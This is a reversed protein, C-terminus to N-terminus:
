NRSKIINSELNFHNARHRHELVSPDWCMDSPGSWSSFLYPGASRRGPWPVAPRDAVAEKRHLAVWLGVQSFFVFVALTQAVFLGSWPMGRERSTPSLWRLVMSPRPVLPMAFALTACAVSSRSSTV